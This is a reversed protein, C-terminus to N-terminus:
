KKCDVLDKDEISFPKGTKIEVNRAFCARGDKLAIRLDYKGTSVGTIKLREDHDVSGDKDNACQDPGFDSTGAKAIELKTVTSSILNWFQPPKDAALATAAIGPFSLALVTLIRRKMNGGTWRM